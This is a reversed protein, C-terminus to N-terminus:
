VTAAKTTRELRLAGDQHPNWGLERCIDCASHSGVACIDAIFGWLPVGKYKKSLYLHANLIITERSVRPLSEVPMLKLKKEPGSGKIRAEAEKRPWVGAEAVNLTYGNGNPRWYTNHEGSYIHVSDSM